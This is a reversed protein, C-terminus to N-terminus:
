SLFGKIIFDEAEQESLGLTLLKELQAGAIKGITAEHILRADSSLASIQPVAIITADNMLIADCEIHGFSEQSGIVNSHFEQKSQDKAVARSTIKTSANKGKLNVEFISDAFQDNQTLIKENVIFSANEDLEGLTKRVAYDVGEMQTSNMTLTANEKLYVTTVPSLNKKGQKEGHGYHKEVYTVKDNKELYFTHIGNHESNHDTHNHIGCGAVITVQANEGIHFDNYVLDNIGGRMILVPIYITENKTNEKIYIDIGSKDEKPIIQVNESNNRLVSEGDIRLNYAGNPIEEIDAVKNLMFKKIEEINDM